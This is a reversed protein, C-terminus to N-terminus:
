PPCPEGKQAQTQAQAQKVAARLADHVLRACFQRSPPLGDLAEIIGEVTIELANTFPHGTVTECVWDAAAIVSVCNFTRFRAELIRGQGCRLAIVAFIGTPIKGATGLADPQFTLGQFRANRFRDLTTQSFSM